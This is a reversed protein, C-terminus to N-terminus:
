GHSARGDLSTGSGPPPQDGDQIRHAFKWVGNLKELPGTFAGTAYVSPTDDVRAVWFYSFARARNGDVEIHIPGTSHRMGKTFGSETLRRSIASIERPSQAQAMRSERRRRGSRNRGLDQLRCQAAAVAHVPCRRSEDVPHRARVGHARHLDRHCPEALGVASTFGPGRRGGMWGHVHRNRLVPQGCWRGCGTHRHVRDGLERGVGGASRRLCGAWGAARQSVQPVRM